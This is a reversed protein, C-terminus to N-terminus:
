KFDVVVEIHHTFKVLIAKITEDAQAAKQLCSIESVTLKIPKAPSVAPWQSWYSRAEWPAVSVRGIVVSDVWNSTLGLAKATTQTDM